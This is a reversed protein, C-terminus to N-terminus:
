NAAPKYPQNHQFPTATKNSTQIAQQLQPRIAYADAYNRVYLNTGVPSLKRTGIPKKEDLLTQL